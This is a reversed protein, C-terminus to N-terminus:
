WPSPPGETTRVILVSCPAHHSIKNPVSGLLFRKAGTMGRNGVVILDADHEAAVDLLANAPDGRRAHSEVDLGEAHLGGAATDLISDVQADPGVMWTAREPTDEGSLHAGSAREYASVVHLTAGTSKALDAAERLALTATASGDTGVVIAKM